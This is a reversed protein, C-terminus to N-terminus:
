IGAALAIVLLLFILAAPAIGVITAWWPSHRVMLAISVAACLATAAAISLMVYKANRTTTASANALGAMIFVEGCVAVVIGVLLAGVACLTSLVQTATSAATSATTASNM